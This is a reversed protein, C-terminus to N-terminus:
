LDIGEPPMYSVTDPCNVGPHNKFNLETSFLDLDLVEDVADSDDSHKVVLDRLSYKRMRRRVHRNHQNANQYWFRDGYFTNELQKIMVKAQTKGFISGHRRHEGVYGPWLDILFADKYLAQYKEPLQPDNTDDILKRFCDLSMPDNECETPLSGFYEQRVEAYTKSGGDRGRFVTTSPINIGSRQTIGPGPLNLFMETLHDELPMQQDALGYLINDVSGAAFYQHTNHYDGANRGEVGGAHFRAVDAGCADKAHIAHAVHTHGRHALAAEFKIRPDITDDYSTWKRYRFRHNLLREMVTKFHHQAQGINIMRADDYIKQGDWKHTQHDYYYSCPQIWRKKRRMWFPKCAFDRIEQALSNHERLYLLQFYNLAINSHCREDGCVSTEKPHAYPLFFDGNFDIGADYATPFWDDIVTDFKLNATYSNIYQTPELNHRAAAEDCQTRIVDSPLCDGNERRATTCSGGINLVRHSETLDCSHSMCPDSTGVASGTTDHDIIWWEEPPGGHGGGTRYCYPDTMSPYSATGQTWCQGATPYSSVGEVTAGNAYVVETLSCYNTQQDGQGHFQSGDITRTWMKGNSDFGPDKILDLRTANSGYVTHLHFWTSAATVPAKKSDGPVVENQVQAIVSQWPVFPDGPSFPDFPFGLYKKRFGKFFSFPPFPLSLDNFLIEDTCNEHDFATCTVDVFENLDDNETLYMRQRRDLSSWDGCVPFPCEPSLVPATSFKEGVTAQLEHGIFMNIFGVLLQNYETSNPTTPGTTFMEISSTQHLFRMVDRELPLQVYSDTLPYYYGCEWHRGKERDIESTQPDVPGATPNCVYERDNTGVLAGGFPRLWSGYDPNDLNNCHGSLSPYLHDNLSCPGTM